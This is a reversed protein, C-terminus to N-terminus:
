RFHFNQKLNEIAHDIKKSDKKLLHKATLFATKSNEIDGLKELAMGLLYHADAFNRVLEIATLAEDVADEYEELQFHM